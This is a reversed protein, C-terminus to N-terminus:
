AEKKTTIQVSIEFAPFMPDPEGYMARRASKWLLKDSQDLAFLVDQLADELAEDGTGPETEPGIVLLAADVDLHGGAYASPRLEDLRLMVTPAAINGVNRAYPEVGYTPPLVGALIAVLDDRAEM